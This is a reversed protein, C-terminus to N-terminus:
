SVILVHNMVTRLQRSAENKYFRNNALPRHLQLKSFLNEECAVNQLSAM